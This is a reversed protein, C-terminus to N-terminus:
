KGNTRVGSRQLWGRMMSILDSTNLPKSIYDSAGAELCKERDGKMAKATVVIIPLSKLRDISRIAKLTNFGDMEPMMIDLLVIDIDRTERLLDIADKGNEATLVEMSFRELLSTMAFLNRIDDDVLLVKKGTLLADPNHLQELMKRQPDPLKASVRHLFLSTEDLLREPSQAGKIIISEAVRKLQSEEKRTLERGTYVIIPLDRLKPEKKIEEILQYGTM